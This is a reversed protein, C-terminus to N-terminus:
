LSTFFKITHVEFCVWVVNVHIDHNLFPIRWNLRRGIWAMCQKCEEGEVEGEGATPHLPCHSVCFTFIMPQSLLLKSSLAILHSFFVSSLPDLFSINNSVMSVGLLLCYRVAGETM